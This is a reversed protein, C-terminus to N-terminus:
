YGRVIPSKLKVDETQGWMIEQTYITGHRPCRALVPVRGSTRADSQILRVERLCKRCRPTTRVRHIKDASM